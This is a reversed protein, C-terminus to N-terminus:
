RRALLWDFWRLRVNRAVTYFAPTVNRLHTTSFAPTLMRRQKRHVDGHVALLGPGILMHYSSHVAGDAPHASALVNRSPRLM